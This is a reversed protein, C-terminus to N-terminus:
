GYWGHLYVTVSTTNAGTTFDVSLKSYSASGPTWTQPESTAGTGGAGLYVYSGQVFASLTYTSNPRVSVTQTCRANDAGSPTAKLASSGSHAPSSTVQGSGNACSWGSLGNEFGSNTVLDTAAAGASGSGALTVCAGLVTAASLGAITRTLVTSGRRTRVAAPHGDDTGPLTRIRRHFM